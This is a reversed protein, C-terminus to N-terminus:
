AYRLFIRLGVTCLAVGVFVRCSRASHVSVKSGQEATDGPLSLESPAEVWGSPIIEDVEDAGRIGCGQGRCVGNLSGGGQDGGGEVARGGVGESSAGGAGVM